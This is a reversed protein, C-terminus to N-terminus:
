RTPAASAATRSVSIVDFGESILMQSAYSGVYGSGGFVVVKPKSGDATASSLPSLISLAAAAAASSAFTRRDLRAEVRAASSPLRLATVAQLLVVVVHLVARRM